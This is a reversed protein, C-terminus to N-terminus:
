NALFKLLEKSMLKSWLFQTKKDDIIEKMKGKEM